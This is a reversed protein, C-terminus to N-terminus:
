AVAHGGEHGLAQSISTHVVTYKTYNQYQMLETVNTM